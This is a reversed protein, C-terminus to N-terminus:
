KTKPKAKAKSSTPKQRATIVRTRFQQWEDRSWVIDHTSSKDDYVSAGFETKAGIVKSPMSSMVRVGLAAAERRIRDVEVKTM